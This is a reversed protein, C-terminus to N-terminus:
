GTIHDIHKGKLVFCIDKSSIAFSNSEREIGLPYHFASSITEKGGSLFIVTYKGAKYGM